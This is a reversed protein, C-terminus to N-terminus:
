HRLGLASTLLFLGGGALFGVLTGNIRVYQLDKGVRLELKEVVAREDWRAVVDAIDGEEVQERLLSGGSRQSAQLQEELEQRRQQVSHLQDYQLRAAEELDGDREAEAKETM